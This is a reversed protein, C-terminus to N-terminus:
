MVIKSGRRVLSQIIKPVIKIVAFNINYSIRSQERDNRKIIFMVYFFVKLVM